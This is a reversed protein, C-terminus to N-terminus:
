GGARLRCALASRPPAVVSRFRRRRTRPYAAGAWNGSVPAGILLDDFRDDNVDGAGSVSRGAADGAAGIIKFGGIGAAVHDLNVSGPM